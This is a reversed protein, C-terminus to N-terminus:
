FVNSFLDCAILKIISTTTVSLNWQVINQKRTALCYNIKAMGKPNSRQLCGDWLDWSADSLYGVMCWKTASIHMHKCLETVFHHMTPYTVSTIHSKHSPDIPAIRTFIYWTFRKSRISDGCILISLTHFASWIQSGSSLRDQLYIPGFITVM